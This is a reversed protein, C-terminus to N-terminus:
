IDICQTRASHLGRLQMCCVKRTPHWWAEVFAFLDTNCVYRRFFPQGCLMVSIAPWCRCLLFVSALMIIYTNYLCDELKVLSLARHYEGERANGKAGQVWFAGCWVLSTNPPPTQSEREIHLFFFYIYIYIYVDVWVFNCISCHGGWSFTITFVSGRCVHECGVNITAFVQSSICSRCCFHKEMLLQVPQVRTGM